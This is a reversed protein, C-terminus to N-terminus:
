FYYYDLFVLLGDYIFLVYYEKELLKVCSYRNKWFVIDKIRVM